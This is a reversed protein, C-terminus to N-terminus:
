DHYKNVMEYFRKVDATWFDKVGENYCEEFQRETFPKDLDIYKGKRRNGKCAGHCYGVCRHVPTTELRHEARRRKYVPNEEYIISHTGISSQISAVGTMGSLSERDTEEFTVSSISPEYRKSGGRRKGRGGVAVGNLAHTSSALEETTVVSQNDRSGHSSNNDDDDDDKNGAGLTVTLVRPTTSGAQSEVNRMDTDDAGDEGNDGNNNGGKINGAHDVNTLVPPLASAASDGADHLGLLRTDFTSGTVRKELRYVYLDPTNQGTAQPSATLSPAHPSHLASNRSPSSGASNNDNRVSRVDSLSRAPRNSNSPAM